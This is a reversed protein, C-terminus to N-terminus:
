HRSTALESAALPAIHPRPGCTPTSTAAPPANDTRTPTPPSPRTCPPLRAPRPQPRHAPQVPVHVRRPLLRAPRDIVPLPPHRHALAQVAVHGPARRCPSRPPSAPPHRSIMPASRTAPRSAASRGGGFAREVAHTVDVGRDVPHDVGRDLQVLAPSSAIVVSRSRNPRAGHTRGGPTVPSFRGREVGRGDPALSGQGTPPRRADAGFLGGVSRNTWRRGM